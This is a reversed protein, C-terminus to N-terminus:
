NLTVAFTMSRHQPQIKVVAAVAANADELKLDAIAINAGAQALRLATAKGIGNAGGTVIAIKGTRDFLENFSKHEFTQM